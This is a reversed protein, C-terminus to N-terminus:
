ELKLSDNEKTGAYIVFLVTEMLADYQLWRQSTPNKKKKYFKLSLFLESFDTSFIM